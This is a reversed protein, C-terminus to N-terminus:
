QLNTSLLNFKRTSFSIKKRFVPFFQLHKHLSFNRFILFVVYVYSRSPLKYIHLGTDLVIYQVYVTSVSGSCYVYTSGISIGVKAVIHILSSLAVPQWLDRRMM